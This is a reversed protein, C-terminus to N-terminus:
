FVHRGHVPHPQRRRLRLRRRQRWWRWRWCLWKFATKSEHIEMMTLSGTWPYSMRTPGPARHYANPIPFDLRDLTSQSVHTTAQRNWPGFAQSVPPPQRVWAGLRAGNASVSLRRRGVNPDERRDPFRRKCSRTTTPGM